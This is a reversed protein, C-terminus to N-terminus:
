TRVRPVAPAILEIVAASSVMPPIVQAEQAACISFFSFLSSPTLAVTLKAVSVARTLKGRQM